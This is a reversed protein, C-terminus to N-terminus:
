RNRRKPLYRGPDVDRGNRTIEFHLEPRTAVGGQGGIGIREGAKVTEGEAVTLRALHGYTTNWGNGHDIVVMHGFRRNDTETLRVSGTAAARVMDGPIVAIDLGDHGGGDARKAFGALVKGDHPRRFFPRDRPVRRRATPEGMVSPIILRQGSRVAYPPDIGNAIAITSLPVGARNAIGGQTEGAKVRHSRQRPIFLREGKQVDYPEVLGNAAAIVAAEVGARNAIGGLTEGEEVVHHNETAPNGAALLAFAVFPM